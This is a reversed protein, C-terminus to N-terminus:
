GGERGNVRLCACSCVEVSETAAHSLMTGLTLVTVLVDGDDAEVGALPREFQAHMRAHAHAHTHTSTTHVCEPVISM